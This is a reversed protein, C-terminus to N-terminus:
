EALSVCVLEVDNRMYVSKNAFAPHSWVVKRRADTNTPELLKARSIEEYGKPTLKAIILEGLENALFYRDAHKILLANGWRVPDKTTAAFTEWVREGTELKLSRLEGYSCVGYIHGDEIFPTSM